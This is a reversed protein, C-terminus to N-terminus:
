DDAVSIIVNGAKAGTEVYRHAEATQSLDFTRDIVVRLTGDEILQKLELLDDLSREGAGAIVTKGTQRDTRSGRMMQGMTPNAVLYRGNEALAGLARQGDGKGVVDFIVDYPGSLTFDERRYDIVHDAGLSRLMELKGAADVGTVDAGYNKALQVGITGISGGAGNVLVKEGRQIGARRLYALAELGGTPVAAAEAFTVNAPKLAVMSDANGSSEPLCIYQAYAGMTFGTTAFVEDGPKFRSVDKGVTEVV